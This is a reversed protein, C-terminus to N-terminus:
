TSRLAKILKYDNAAKRMATITKAESDADRQTEEKTAHVAAKAASRSLGADRLIQEIERETPPENKINMAMVAQPVKNYKSLDFKNKAESEGSIASAFGNSLAEEANLWTENDMLSRIESEGKGTTTIYTNVIQDDIKELTDAMKRMEKANGGSYVWANHVMVFSNKAIERVDGAMLIISAISAALGEVKINVTASHSKLSNYIAFGDFVDGGPSNLHLTINKATVGALDACFDKATVGWYGIEDYIFLIAEDTDKKNEFKYWSKNAM